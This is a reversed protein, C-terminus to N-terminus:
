PPTSNGSSSRVLDEYMDPLSSSRGEKFIVPKLTRHVCVCAQVTPPRSRLM